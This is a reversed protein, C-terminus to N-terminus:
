ISISKGSLSHLSMMQLRAASNLSSPRCRVDARILRRMPSVATALLSTSDTPSPSATAAPAISDSTRSASPSAAWASSM